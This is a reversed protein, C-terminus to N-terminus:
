VVGMNAAWMVVPKSSPTEHATVRVIMGASHAAYLASLPMKAEEASVPYDFASLAARVAQPHIGSDDERTIFPARWPVEGRKEPVNPTLHATVTDGASAQTALMTKAPIYVMEGAHEGETVSGFGTGSSIQSEILVKVEM